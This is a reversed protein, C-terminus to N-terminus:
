VGHSLGFQKQSHQGQGQEGGDQSSGPSLLGGVLLEDAEHLLQRVGQVFSHVNDVGLPGRTATTTHHLEVNGAVVIDGAVAVTTAAPSVPVLSRSTVAVDTIMSRRTQGASNRISVSKWCRTKWCRVVSPKEVVQKGVVFLKNKKEVIQKGVVFLKNELLM